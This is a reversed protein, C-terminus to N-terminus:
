FLDNNVLGHIIIEQHVKALSGRLMASSINWILQNLCELNNILEVCIDRKM